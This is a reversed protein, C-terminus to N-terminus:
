NFHTKAFERAIINVSFMPEKEYKQELNPYRPETFILKVLLDFCEKIADRDLKSYMFFLNKNIDSQCIKRALYMAATCVISKKFNYFEQYLTMLELFYKAMKRSKKEYNNAKSVRRLFYLPNVYKIDYDLSYLMYKEAKKIEIESFNNETLLVFSNLDPCIVEEIKSAIFLATIGVLQLKNTSISRGNLFRDILFISFHLTDDCLNLKEHTAIVWDVLLSRMEFSIDKEHFNFIIDLGEFYSEIQKKYKSVACIENEDSHLHSNLIGKEPESLQTKTTNTQRNTINKLPEAFAKRTIAM